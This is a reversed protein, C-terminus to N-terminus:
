AKAKDVESQAFRAFKSLMGVIPNGEATAVFAKFLKLFMVEEDTFDNAVHTTQSAQIAVPPPQSQGLLAALGPNSALAQQVLLAVQDNAM